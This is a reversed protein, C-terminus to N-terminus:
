KLFYYKSVIEIDRSTINRMVNEKAKSPFDIANGAKLCQSASYRSLELYRSALYARLWKRQHPETPVDELGSKLYYIEFKKSELCMTEMDSYYIYKLSEYMTEVATDKSVLETPAKYNNDVKAEIYSTTVKVPVTVVRGTVDVTKVDVYTTTTKIEAMSVMMMSIIGVLVM